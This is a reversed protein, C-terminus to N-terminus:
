FVALIVRVKRSPRHIAVTDRQIKRLILFTASLRQLSCSFMTKYEILNKRFDNRKHSLTSFYQTAPYAVCSVTIIRVLSAIKM